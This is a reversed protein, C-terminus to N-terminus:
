DEPPFVVGGSFPTAGITVTGETDCESMSIEFGIGNPAWIKRGAVKLDSPKLDFRGCLDAACKEYIDLQAKTLKNLLPEMSDPWGRLAQIREDDGIEDGFGNVRM